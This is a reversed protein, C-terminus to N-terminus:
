HVAPVWIAREGIRDEMYIRISDDPLLVEVKEPWEIFCYQGSYFYEEYGLDYVEEEKKIRYFDFHHILGGTDREYQNVISFTPSNVVGRVGLQRCLYQVMTTKGVGMEGYLAFVLGRPFLGLIDNAITNLDDVAIAIAQYDFREM